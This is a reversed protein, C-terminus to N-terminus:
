CAWRVPEANPPTLEPAVLAQATLAEGEEIRPLFAGGGLLQPMGPRELEFRYGAEVLSRGNVRHQEIQEFVRRLHPAELGFATSLGYVAWYSEDRAAEFTYRATRAGGAQFPGHLARLRELVIERDFRRGRALPMGLSTALEWLAAGDVEVIAVERTLSGSRAALTGSALLRWFSGSVLREDFRTLRWGTLGGLRVIASSSASLDGPHIGLVAVREGPGVEYPFRVDFVDDQTAHRAWRARGSPEPAALYAIPSPGGGGLSHRMLPFTPGGAPTLLVEQVHRSTDGRAIDVYQRFRLTGRERGVSSRRLFVPFYRMRAGKPLARPDRRALPSFGITAPFGDRAVGQPDFCLGPVDVREEIAREAM